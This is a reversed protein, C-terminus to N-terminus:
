DGMCSEWNDEGVAACDLYWGHDHRNQPTKKDVSRNDAERHEEPLLLFELATSRPQDCAPRM